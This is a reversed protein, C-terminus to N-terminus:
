FGAANGVKSNQDAEFPIVKSGSRSSNSKKRNHSSKSSQAAGGGEGLVVNNLEVTLGQATSALSSIEGTTAAIEEASAANNQGAQDLQSMAKNIQEIGTAQDLSAAAIDSNLTSVKNISDVINSLITGSKDAIESGKDIQSVSDKILSSIDKASSASRQALTRVAEAVVAFGKGQEGARAAEVAANLALLNTQFAIDDIVSIIEEIKKSSESIQNMSQILNQIERAGVEASTRSTNALEAAQRANDSGIKVMSTMEELSAVTEELSAAAETSASSLSNGAESLQEVSTAVDGAAHTLRDSISSITNSTGAAIWLLIAFISFCCILTVIVLMTVVSNQTEVGALSSDKAQKKYMGNLFDIWANLKLNLDKASGDLLDQADKNKQPDSSDALELLKEASTLFAEITPKIEIYRKTEEGDMPTAGYYAAAKKYNELQEKATTIAAKKSDPNLTPVTASWVESNFRHRSGDLDGIADFTPIIQDNSVNLLSGVKGIGHYSIVSLIGFGIFPLIAAFLLRGKIGRFWSSFSPGNM